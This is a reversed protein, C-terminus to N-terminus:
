GLCRMRACSALWCRRRSSAMLVSCRLGSCGYTRTSVERVDCGSASLVPSKSCHRHTRILVFGTWLQRGRCRQRPDRDCESWNPSHILPHSPLHTPSHILPYPSHAFLHNLPHISCIPSHSSSHILPHTVPHTRSCTFPHAVTHALPHTAMEQQLGTTSRPTTSVFCDANKASHTRLTSCSGFYYFNGNFVAPPRALSLTPPPPDIPSRQIIGGASSRSEAPYSGPPCHPSSGPLVGGWILGWVRRRDSCLCGSWRSRPNGLSAAAPRCSPATRFETKVRCGGPVHQVTQMAQLRRAVVNSSTARNSAAPTAQASCRNFNSHRQM